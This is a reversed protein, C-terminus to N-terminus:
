LSALDDKAGNSIAYFIDEMDALTDLNQDIMQELLGYTLSHLVARM